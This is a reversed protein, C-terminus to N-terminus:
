FAMICVPLNAWRDIVWLSLREQGDELDLIEWDVLQGRFSIGIITRGLHQKKFGIKM